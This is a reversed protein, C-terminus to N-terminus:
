ILANLKKTRSLEYIDITKYIENLIQLQISLSGSKSKEDCFKGFVEKPNSNNFDLLISDESLGLELTSLKNVTEINRNLYTVGFFDPKGGRELLRCYGIIVTNLDRSRFLM